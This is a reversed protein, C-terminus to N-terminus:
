RRDKKSESKLRSWRNLFGAVGGLVASDRGARDEALTRQGEGSAAARLCEVREGCNWCQEQVERMGQQSRPFVKELAGFCEPRPTESEQESM